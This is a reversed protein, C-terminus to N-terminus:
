EEDLVTRVRRMLEGMEYPKQLFDRAGADLAEQRYGDTVLGSAVIVKVGPNM